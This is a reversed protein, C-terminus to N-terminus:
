NNLIAETLSNKKHETNFNEYKADLNIEIVLANDFLSSKIELPYEQKKVKNFIITEATKEIASTSSGSFDLNNFTGLTFQDLNHGSKKYFNDKLLKYPIDQYEKSLLYQKQIKAGLIEVSDNEETEIILPITNTFQGIRNELEFGMLTNDRSDITTEILFATKNVTFKKICFSLIFNSLLLENSQCFQKIATLESENITVVFSIIEMQANNNVPLSEYEIASYSFFDSIGTTRNNLLNQFHVSSITERQLKSFIGNGGVKITKTNLNKEYLEYVLQKLMKNSQFDTIVHHITIQVIADRNDHCIDIHCLDGNQYDFPKKRANEFFMEIPEPDKLNTSFYTIHPTFDQLPVAAQFIEDGETFIRLRLEPILEFVQAITTNFRQKDFPNLEFKFHHVSHNYSNNNIYAKQNISLPVPTNYVAAEQDSKNEITNKELYLVLDIIAPYKLIKLASLTYGKKKLKTSVQISKLSNGGLEYFNDQVGVKDLGLVEKFIEVMLFQEVTEPELYNNSHILEIDPRPLKKRDIKGNDLTPIDELEIIFNPLMYGPLKDKLLNWVYQKDYNKKPVVYCILAKDDNKHLTDVIAVSQSIYDYSDLLAEIEGLEIRNGRIKIQNDIRGLHEITGDPLWKALDGTNYFNQTSNDKFLNKIFNKSNLEPRNLYGRAVQIGEIYLEGIVGVPLINHHKDLIHLKTNPVPYGIPVSTKESITKPVEYFTVDIAAETPGYLNYLETKPLRAQVEIAHSVKLAEGSCIIKKLTTCDGLEVDMLFVELMSPVFHIITVEKEKIVRKLYDSDKEGEPEAFVLKSGSIVPLFIEWVSVDFCYTTKQLFVDYKETDCSYNKAWLLRNVLGDNQNMVGKPIGTSGSTYILYLLNQSDIDIDPNVASEKAIHEWDKDLIVIPTSTEKFNSVEDSKCILIAPKADNIIFLKRDTPYKPDLPIYAAGTKIVALISIMMELSRDLCLAVFNEKKVGKSILHWALKNAQKNLDDYSLKEDRFEIAINHPTKNVQEEFLKIITTDRLYENDVTYFSNIKAKEKNSLIQISKLPETNSNLVNSVMHKFNDIMSIITSELFIDSCYQLNISITDQHEKATFLLDFKSFEANLEIANDNEAVDEENKTPMVSKDINQFVFVTQFLPTKSSERDKVVAEVIKSFPVDQYDLDKLTQTKVLSLVETFNMDDSLKTRLPLTNAFFGILDEFEIQTRNALITGVCVDPEGSYKYLLVKIFSLLVMFLSAEKEHAIDKIASTFQKDLSFTISRGKDNQVSTRPFDIPLTIEKYDLLRTKWYDVKEGLVAQNEISREWLSYDSYQFLLPKLDPKIGELKAKYIAFLENILITGSWGDFAIHHIVLLLIGIGDNRLLLNARLMFDNSLDFPNELIEKSFKTRYSSELGEQYVSLKWSNADLFDQYPIGDKDRIVTRLVQHRLLLDKISSEILDPNFGKKLQMSLPIHYAKTGALQDLYWLREQAYSLPIETVNNAKKINFPTAVANKNERIFLSQEKITKLKFFDRIKVEVNLEKRIVAVLRTILLSNGGLDFFNDIIGVSDIKLLNQWIGALIKEDTTTPAIYEKVLFDKRDPKPLKKEDIKGNHTLPFSELRICVQPIMYDPLKIKLLSIIQANDFLYDEDGIVYAVLLKDNADELVQLHAKKIGPLDQINNEIENLEIRYGRIKVQSDTRGIYEANGSDLWKAADGTKYLFPSLSKDFPNEIFKEATLDSRNLYGKALQEGGIYMEGPVGIAVPLLEDNLIYIQVNSTPKGILTDTKTNTTKSDIRYNMCGVTAETPGYENWIIVKDGFYNILKSITEQRLKEGGIIFVKDTDLDYKEKKALSDLLLETHSPTLKIVDFHTDAVLDIVEYIDKFPMIDVIGGTSLPTFITTVTLDFSISTFLVYKLPKNQSYTNAAHCIYNHLAGHTIQVGKPNGTTGSTYIVYALQDPTVDVMIKEPDCHRLDEKDIYIKLLDSNNEFSAALGSQTIILSAKTDELIFEIRQQPYTHDVPVYAAGVKIIALIAVIMEFSPEICIPILQEKKVGKQVLLYALKNSAEDLEKYKLEKNDYLLAVSNPAKQVQNEFLDLITKEQDFNEKTANFSTLITHREEKTLFNIKGIPQAYNEIVSELLEKFHISMKKITDYKFLSSDYEVVVKLGEKLENISFTIDYKTFINKKHIFQEDNKFVEGGAIQNQFVFMVDFLASRSEHRDNSLKDVISEFSTDQNKFAELLNKKMFRLLEEFSQTPSLNSRVVVVNVFFGILAELDKHNRNAVPTGICLDTQGSYKYMLVKLASMLLMFLTADEKLALDKLSKTLDNNLYFIIAEGQIDKYSKRPYDTQLELPKIDQLYQNWFDLKNQLLDGSLYKKQWVAYDSYQIALEQSDAKGTLLQQEYFALLEKKLINISWGDSAIHHLIIILEYKDKQDILLARLMYEKEMLFPRQTIEKILELREENNDSHALELTWEEPSIITQHPVGDISQITTRLVEHRELVKKIANKLFSVNLEKSFEQSLSIHFEKSGNIQDIFWLREQSYSLPINAILERDFKPIEGILHDTNQKTNQRTKLFQFIEEKLKKIEEILGADPTVDRAVKFRLIDNEIFLSIGNKNAKNILQFVEKRFDTIM